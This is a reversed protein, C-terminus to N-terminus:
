IHRGGSSKSLTTGQHSMFASQLRPTKSNTDGFRTFLYELTERPLLYLASANAM